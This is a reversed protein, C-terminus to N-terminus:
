LPARGAPVVLPDRPRTRSRHPAHTCHAGPLPAADIVAHAIVGYEETVRHIEVEHFGNAELSEGVGDAYEDPTIVRRAYTFGGDPRGVPSLTAGPVFLADVVVPPREGGACGGLTRLTWSNLVSAFM